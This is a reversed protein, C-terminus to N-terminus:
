NIGSPINSIYDEILIIESKNGLRILLNEESRVKYNELSYFESNDVYNEKPRHVYSVVNGLALTGLYM